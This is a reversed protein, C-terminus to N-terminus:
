FGYFQVSLLTHVCVCVCVHSKKWWLCYMEWNTLTVVATSVFLRLLCLSDVCHFSVTKLYVPRNRQRQSVIKHLSVYVWTGEIKEREVKVKWLMTILQKWVLFPNKFFTHLFYIKKCLRSQFHCLYIRRIEECVSIVHVWRSLLSALFHLLQSM